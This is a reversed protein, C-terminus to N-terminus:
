RAFLGRKKLEGLARVLRECEAATGASIRAANAFGYNAIPRVIVGARLLADCVPKAPVGFDCLVFNGQSDPVVFGQARLERTLFAVGEIAVTRSKKQHDLDGLAAIGAAQAVSSVNFPPRARDVYGAIWRDCLAYGLRLGALGHIKSFTRMTVLNSFDRRLETSDPYDAAHAFEFYAEDMVVITSQSIKGLLRELEPRGFHTGTPNVPNDLFLLRTRPSLADAVADVDISFRDRMPVEVVKRGLAQAALKFIAFSGRSLLVEDDGHVFAQLLLAILDNSGNGVIVEEPHVNHHDALARRLHFSSGDPYLHVHALAARAAEIARPSPGLPNENSALKIVGTIGLERETEEIPKGPVYPSLHELHNPIPIKM